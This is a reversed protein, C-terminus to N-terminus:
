QLMHLKQINILSLISRGTYPEEPGIKERYYDVWDKPAQLPLHPLPSAYYLFFKSDKNDDIFKLAENHM